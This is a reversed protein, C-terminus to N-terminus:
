ERWDMRHRSTVHCRAPTFPCRSLPASAASGTTNHYIGTKTAIDIWRARASVAPPPTHLYSCFPSNKERTTAKPSTIAATATCNGAQQHQAATPRTIGATRPTPIRRAYRHKRRGSVVSNADIAHQPYLIIHRPRSYGHPLAIAPPAGFATQKPPHPYRYLVPMDDLRPTPSPIHEHPAPVIPAVVRGARVVSGNGAGKVARRPLHLRTEAGNGGAM